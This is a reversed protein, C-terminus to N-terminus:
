KKYFNAITLYDEEVLRNKINGFSSKNMLGLKGSEETKSKSTMFAQKHIIAKYIDCGEGKAGFVWKIRKKLDILTEKLALGSKTGVFGRLAGILEKKVEQQRLTLEENISKKSMGSVMEDEAGSQGTYLKYDLVSLRWDGPIDTSSKTVVWKTNITSNKFDYVKTPKLIRSNEHKM